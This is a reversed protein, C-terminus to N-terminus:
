FKIKKPKANMDIDDRFFAGYAGHEKKKLTMPFIKLKDVESVFGGERLVRAFEGALSREHKEGTFFTFSKGDKGGRGTRGIRHIYDVCRPLSLHSSVNLFVHCHLTSTRMGEITLPFSYNIVAGVNPIDLGRAAVDTAVLLGTKGTKFQDLSAMRAAQGMDGHIAAATFGIYRLTELVRDAEKKYLVFILIRSEANASHSTSHNLTKLLAHLRKSRLNATLMRPRTQHM